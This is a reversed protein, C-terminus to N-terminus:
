HISVPNCPEDLESEEAAICIALWSNAALGAIRIRRRERSCPLFRRARHRRAAKGEADVGEADVGETDVQSGTGILGFPSVRLKPNNPMDLKGFNRARRQRGCRKM